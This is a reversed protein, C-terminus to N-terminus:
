EARGLPCRATSGIAGPQRTRLSRLGRAFGPCTSGHPGSFPSISRSQRVCPRAHWRSLRIRREDNVRKGDHALTADRDRHQPCSTTWIRLLELITRSERPTTATERREPAEDFRSRPWRHRHRAGCAGYLVPADGPALAAKDTRPAASPGARSAYATLGGVCGGAGCWGVSGHDRPEFARM